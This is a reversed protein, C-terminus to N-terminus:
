SLSDDPVAESRNQNELCNFIFFSHRETGCAFNQLRRSFPPTFRHLSCYFTPPELSVQGTYMGTSFAPQCFSM